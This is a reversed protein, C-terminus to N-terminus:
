TTPWSRTPPSLTQTCGPAALFLKKIKCLGAMTHLEDSTEHRSVRGKALRAAQDQLAAMREVKALNGRALAFKPNLEIARRFWAAAGDLDGKDRLLVGLDNYPESGKPNLEIAKKCCAAAGALDGKDWM